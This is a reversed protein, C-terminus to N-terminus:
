ARSVANRNGRHACGQADCSARMYVATHTPSLKQKRAEEELCSGLSPAVCATLRGCDSCEIICLAGAESITACVRRGDPLSVERVRGEACLTALMRYVTARSVKPRSNSVADCVDQATFPATLREVAQQVVRKQWTDIKLGKTGM